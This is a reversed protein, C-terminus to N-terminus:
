FFTKQKIMELLTQKMKLLSVKYLRTFKDVKIGNNQTINFYFIADSGFM